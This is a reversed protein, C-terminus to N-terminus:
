NPSKQNKSRDRKLFAYAQDLVRQSDKYKNLIQKADRYLFWGYGKHERSSLHIDAHRTEALYFIVTKFTQQGARRFFFKEYANFGRALRLDAQRLGTEERTERLAAEMSEEESEIKGKPFNWYAGGHYLLLFRPGDPSHRFVIIGAAIERRIKKKQPQNIM